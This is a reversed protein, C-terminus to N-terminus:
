THQLIQKRFIKLYLGLSFILIGVLFIFANQFGLYQVIVGGIISGLGAGGDFSAYYTANAAGRRDLPAIRMVFANITPNTCGYGLGIFAAAVIVHTLTSALVLVLTGVIVLIIGPIIVKSAGYRDAMKGVFFRTSLLALAFATFYMGINDIGKTIGFTPMFTMIFGMPISLCLQTISGPYATKEFATKLTIKTKEKQEENDCERAQQNEKMKKEYNFTMVLMLGILSILVTAYIAANYGLWGIIILALSPGIATAINFSIGYYGIGESIRSVPVVDAVVTGSSTSYGSYGIGMLSRLVLIMAVSTTLSVGFVAVSFIVIGIIMVIKRGKLDVLNGYIPRFVLSAITFVGTVMGAISKDAGLVQVYLPLSTNLMNACMSLSLTILIIKVYFSNWLKEKSIKIQKGKSIEEAIVERREERTEEKM